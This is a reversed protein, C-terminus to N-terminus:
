LSEKRALFLSFSAQYRAALNETSQTTITVELSKLNQDLSTGLSVLRDSGPYTVTGPEIRATFIAKSPDSVLFGENDYYRTFGTIDAFPTQLVDSAIQQSIQTRVTEDISERISTLGAPLLALVTVVAFSVLGLALTVEVLSFGFRFRKGLSSVVLSNISIKMPSLLM